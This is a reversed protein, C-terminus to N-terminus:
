RVSNSKSKEDEGEQELGDMTARVDLYKLNM